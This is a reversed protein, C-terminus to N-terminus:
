AAQKELPGSGLDQWRAKGRPSSPQQPFPYIIGAMLLMMLLEFLLFCRGMSVVVMLIAVSALSIQLIRSAHIRLLIRDALRYSFLMMTSGLAIVYVWAQTLFPYLLSELLKGSGPVMVEGLFPVRIHYPTLSMAGSLLSSEGLLQYAQRAAHYDVVQFVLMMVLLVLIFFKRGNRSRHMKGYVYSIWAKVKSAKRRFCPMKTSLFSYFSRWKPSSSAKPKIVYHFVFPVLTLLLALVVKLVIMVM